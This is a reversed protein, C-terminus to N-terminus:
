LESELTMAPQFLLPARQREVERQRWQHRVRCSPRCYVRGPLVEAFGCGPCRASQASVAAACHGGKKPTEGSPSQAVAGVAGIPVATACDGYRPAGATHKKIPVVAGHVELLPVPATV